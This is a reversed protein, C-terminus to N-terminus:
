LGPGRRLMIVRPLPLHAEVNEAQTIMYDAFIAPVHFTEDVDAILANFKEDLVHQSPAFEPGIGHELEIRSVLGGIREGLESGFAHNPLLSRAEEPKVDAEVLVLSFCDGGSSLVLRVKDGGAGSRALAQRVEHRNDVVHEFVIRGIMRHASEDNIRRVGQDVTLELCQVIEPLIPRFARQSKRAVGPLVAALIAVPNQGIRRMDQQGIVHISSYM